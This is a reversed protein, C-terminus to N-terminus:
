KETILEAFIYWKCSTCLKDFGIELGCVAWPQHVREGDIDKQTMGEEQQEEDAMNGPFIEQWM